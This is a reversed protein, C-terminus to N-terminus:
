IMIRAQTCGDGEGLFILSLFTVCINRERIKKSPLPVPTCQSDNNKGKKWQLDDSIQGFCFSSVYCSCLSGRLM